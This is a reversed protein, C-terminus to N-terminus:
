PLSNAEFLKQLITKGVLWEKDIYKQTYDDLISLYM